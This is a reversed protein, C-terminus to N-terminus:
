RVKLNLGHLRNAAQMFKWMTTNKPDPHEWLKRPMQDFQMTADVELKTKYSSPNFFDLLHQETIPTLSLILDFDYSDNLWDIFSSVGGGM